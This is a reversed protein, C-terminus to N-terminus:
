SQILVAAYDRSKCDEWNLRKIVFIKTVLRAAVAVTTFIVCGAVTLIQYPQLTFPQVFDVVEGPPAPLGPGSM